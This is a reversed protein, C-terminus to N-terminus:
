KIVKALDVLSSQLTKLAEELPNEATPTTPQKTTATTPAPTPAAQKAQILQWVAEKDQLTGAIMDRTIKSVDAGRQIFFKALDSTTRGLAVSLPTPTAGGTGKVGQNIDAGKQILQEAIQLRKPDDGKGVALAILPTLPVTFGIHLYTVDPNTLKDITDFIKNSANYAQEVIVDEPKVQVLTPKQNKGGYTPKTLGKVYPEILTKAASIKKEEGVTCERVFKELDKDPKADYDLLIKVLEPNDDVHLIASCLPIDTDGKHFNPSAGNQLLIEAIKNIKERIGKTIPDVMTVAQLATLEENGLKATQNVRWHNQETFYVNFADVSLNRASEVFYQTMDRSQILGYFSMLLFLLFYNQKNM